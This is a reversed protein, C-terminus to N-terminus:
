GQPVVLDDRVWREMRISRGRKQSSAWTRAGNPTIAWALIWDFDRPSTDPMIIVFNGWPKNNMMKGDKYVVTEWPRNNMM